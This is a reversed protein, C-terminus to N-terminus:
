QRYTRDTQKHYSALATRKPQPSSIANARTAFASNTGTVLQESLDFRSGKQFRQEVSVNEM